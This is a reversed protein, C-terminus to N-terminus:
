QPVFQQSLFVCKPPIYCYLKYVTTAHMGATSDRQVYPPVLYVYPLLSTIEENMDIGATRAAMIYPLPM